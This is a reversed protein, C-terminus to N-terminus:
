GGGGDGKDFSIDPGSMSMLLPLLPVIVLSFFIKKM